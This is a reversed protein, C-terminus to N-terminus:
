LAATLRDLKLTGQGVTFKIPAGGVGAKALVSRDTFPLKRDRPKLDPLLNEISGTKLIVADIEASMNSPLRVSMNGSAIQFDASRGRWGRVGVAVDLSGSGVTVNANGSIIEVYAKSDIFNVSMSGEVGTVSFDGKGGDIELDSYKPVTIVYNIRFPLGILNKPFNKPLKKLGFKNHVGVSIVSTRTATEDTVFGTVEALKALDAETGAELEIEATIEVENKTSGIIKISGNPAGTVIITGGTADQKGIHDALIRYTALQVDRDITLVLDTGERPAV